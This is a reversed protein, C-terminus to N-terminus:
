LYLAGMATELVLACLQSPPIPKSPEKSKKKGRASPEYSFWKHDNNLGSTIIDFL